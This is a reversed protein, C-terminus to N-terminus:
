ASPDSGPLSFLTAHAPIDSVITNTGYADIGIGHGDAIPLSLTSDYLNVTLYVLGGNYNFRGTYINLSTDGSTGLTGADQNFRANLMTLNAGYLNITGENAVNNNFFVTSSAIVTGYNVFASNISLICTPDTTSSVMTGNNTIVGGGSATKLQVGVNSNLSFFINGNNTFTDPVTVSSAVANVYAGTPVDTTITLGGIANIVAQGGDSVRFALTGSELTITGKYSPNSGDGNLFTSRQISGGNFNFTGGLIDINTNDNLYLTGANQSINGLTSITTFFSGGGAIFQNNNNIDSNVFTRAALDLTGSNNVVGGLDSFDSATSDPASIASLNGGSQINIAGGAGVGAREGYSQELQISGSLTINNAVSLTVYGQPTAYLNLTGALTLNAMAAGFGFPGSCTPSGGVYADAYYDPQVGDSWNRGDGWDNSVAGTWTDVASAFRSAAASIALACSLAVLSKRSRMNVGFLCDIKFLVTFVPNFITRIRHRQLFLSTSFRKNRLIFSEDCCMRSMPPVPPHPILTSVGNKAIITRANRNASSFHRRSHSSEWLHRSPATTSSAAMVADAEIVSSSGAYTIGLNNLVDNLDNLDITPAGDFNGGTWASTATGLNNLVTNLDNLDVTNSLDTDGLLAPTALISNADVPQNDFTTFPIALSANDVIAVSLQAPNAAVTSSTIGPGNWANNNRATNVENILQALYTSKTAADPAEIILPDNALDVQSNNLLTLSKIKSAGINPTFHLSAATSNNGITLNTTSPLATATNILLTGSTITTNGQYTNSGALTLTGPGSSTISNPGSVPGSLTISDSAHNTQFIVPSFLTLPASLTLAGSTNHITSTSNGNNLTLMGNAGPAINLIFPSQFNINGLTWSGDLNITSPASFATFTATDGVHKPFNQGAWNSTLRWSGNGGSVWTSSASPFPMYTLLVQGTSLTAPLSFYGQLFSATAGIYSTSLSSASIILWQHSQDWFLNGSNPDPLYSPM